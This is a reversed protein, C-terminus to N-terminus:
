DPHHGNNEGNPKRHWRRPRRNNAQEKRTAWRCNGPEYNGNNDIRELTLGAPCEGMDALFNEFNQWRNCVKIGRGGYWEWRHNRPNTCRTLMASWSRHTPTDTMGHQTMRQASVEARLCGCSQSEGKRLIYTHVEKITGCACQCACFTKGNRSAANGIVTWRGFRTGSPMPVFTSM